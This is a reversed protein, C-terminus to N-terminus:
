GDMEIVREAVVQKSGCAHESLSIGACITSGEM